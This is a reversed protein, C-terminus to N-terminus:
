PEWIQCIYCCSVSDPDASLSNCSECARSLCASQWQIVPNHDPSPLALHKIRSLAVRVRVEFYAMLCLVGIPVEAADKAKDLHTALEQLAHTYQQVANLKENLGSQQTTEGPAAMMVVARHLNGLATLTLFVYESGWAEQCLADRWFYLHEPPFLLPLTRSLFYHYGLVHRAGAGPSQDPRPSSPLSAFSSGRACALVSQTTNQSPVAQRPQGPEFRRMQPYGACVVNAAECRECSPKREDCKIRRLRCSLCGTRRRVRKSIMTFLTETPGPPVACRGHAKPTPNAHLIM